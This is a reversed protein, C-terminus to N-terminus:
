TIEEELQRVGTELDSFPGSTAQTSPPARPLEALRSQSTSSSTRKLTITLRPRPIQINDLASHDQFAASSPPDVTFPASLSSPSPENIQRRLQALENELQTYNLANLKNM